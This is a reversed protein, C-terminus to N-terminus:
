DYLREEDAAACNRRMEEPQTPPFAFEPIGNREIIDEYRGQQLQTALHMTAWETSPITDSVLM